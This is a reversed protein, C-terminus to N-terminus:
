SVKKVFNRRIRRLRQSVLQLHWGLMREVKSFGVDRAYRVYDAWEQSFQSLEMARRIRGFLIPKDLSFDILFVQSDSIIFNAPKPDKRRMRKRYLKLLEKFILDRDDSDGQRGEIYEYIYFGDVVVGFKRWEVALLPKPGQVGLSLLDLQQRFQRLSEGNRFLTLFREWKRRSRSRPVKIVAKAGDGVPLVGVFAKKTDKFVRHYTVTGGTVSHCLGMARDRPLLSILRGGDPLRLLVPKISHDVKGRKKM